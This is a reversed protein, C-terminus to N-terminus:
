TNCLAKGAPILLHPSQAGADPRNVYVGGALHCTSDYNVFGSALYRLALGVEGQCWASQEVDLEADDNPRVEYACTLSKLPM